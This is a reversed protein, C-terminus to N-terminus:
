RLRVESRKPRIVVSGAATVTVESEYATVTVAGRGASVALNLTEVIRAQAIDHVSLLHLQTLAAQQAARAQAADAIALTHQQTLAIGQVSRGQALNAVALIAFVTLTVNDVSRAQAVAAIVLQHIQALTVQTMARAVAIDAVALQHVQTLVVNAASRAQSVNAITLVVVGVELVVNDISRAQVLSAVALQHVQTLAVNDLSRAQGISALVLVHVQTLAVNALARAQTIGDVALQHQQVLAVNGEARAQALDAIALATAVSLTVNEATRAQAIAVIVLDVVLAVNQASRAQALNAVALEHVQTLAVNGSSRAQAINDIVLDTGASVTGLVEIAVKTKAGTGSADAVGRDDSGASGQDTWDVTFYTAIGSGGTRVADRVTGGSAPSATVTVDTDASWDGIACIVSSHDDGRALTVLHTTSILTAVVGTGDSGRYQWARLGWDDAGATRTGQITGSGNGTATAKWVYTECNGTSGIPFGPLLNFTLDTGSLNTITPTGLANNPADADQGIVYVDDGDQWTFSGTAKPTTANYGTTDTAVQTPATTKPTIERLRLLAMMGTESSGITATQTPNGPSASGSTVDATGVGILQDNGLNTAADARETVASITTGAMSIGMASFAAPQDDRVAYGLILFDGTSLTVNDVYAQSWATGATAEAVFYAAVGWATGATRAAVTICAQLMRGTVTGALSVTPASDGAELVRLFYTFRRPGTGAGFTGGGGSGTFPSGLQTWGTTITPTAETDHGSAVEVIALDGATFSPLAPTVTIPDTAVGGAASVAGTSVHSITV